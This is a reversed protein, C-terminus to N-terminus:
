ARVITTRAAIDHLGRGQADWVVAPIVLCLLATRILAPVVGVYPTPSNIRRVRLGTLRHGITTGLTAVLVVTVLAFVGLQALPQGQFVLWTIGSAVAWDIILAVVRRGLPARQPEAAGEVGPQSGHAPPGGNLWSGFDQRSAM